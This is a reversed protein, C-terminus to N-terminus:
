VELRDTSQSYFHVDTTVDIRKITQAVAVAHVPYTFDTGVPDISTLLYNLAAYYLNVPVIVHLAAANYQVSTQLPRLLCYAEQETASYQYWTHRSKFPL